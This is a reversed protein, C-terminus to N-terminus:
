AKDRLAEAPPPPDQPPAEPILCVHDGIVTDADPQYGEKADWFRVWNEWDVANEYFLLQKPQVQPFGLSRALSAPYPRLTGWSRLPYSVPATRHNGAWVKMESERLHYVLQPLSLTRRVQSDVLDAGSLRFLGALAVQMVTIQDPTLEELWAPQPITAVMWVSETHFRILLPSEAYADAELQLLISNPKLDIRALRLRIGRFAPSAHLLPLMEREIFHRMTTAHHHLREQHLALQQRRKLGATQREARRMKGYVKAVAGSHFGPKVLRAVTEGHNGVPVPKLSEDRNAQYLRWNSKLEWVLFGFIGPTVLVITGAITQALGVGLGLTNELAKALFPQTTLMIKHSVTVVPFHKIPNIQPEILLTVGFRIGYAVVSWISTLIGKIWMTFPHEGTKYLLWEDIAYLVREITEVFRRFTVMIADFLSRFVQVRLQYWARGIWAGVREEVQRGITSNLFFDLGAFIMVFLAISSTRNLNRLLLTALFYFIVTPILPAVLYRRLAKAIRSRLLFRAWELSMIWRPFDVFVAKLIQFFSQCGVWVFARFRPSYVLGLIFTGLLLIAPLMNPVSDIKWTAPLLGDPIETRRSLLSLAESAPETMETPAEADPAPVDKEAMRGSLWDWPHRIAELAVFAGGFPVAVYKVMFRSSPRGFGLSSIIQLGRLYFEGPRYVGDLLRKLRRNARLIADGFILEPGSLDSLKLQSRSIGDRVDGMTFYGRKVVCDLLEEVLKDRAVEEPLNAPRLENEHLTQRVKDGWTKNGDENVTQHRMGYDSLSRKIRTRLRNRLQTEASAAADRLLVSLEARQAASLRAKALRASAGRLHKAMLVERQNPLARKIPRRGFSRIFGWLDVTSSEREYDVCVKQLDYLLRKNTNWFGRFSYRFLALLAARWRLAEDENFALARRLRVLLTDIVEHAQKEAEQMMEPEPAVRSARRYLIASVVANGHERAADAWKLLSAHRKASPKLPPLPQDLAQDEETADDEGLIAREPYECGSPRTDELTKELDFDGYCLSRVLAHQGALSPFYTDLAQPAFSSLEAHLAVFEIYIRQLGDDDFLRLERRLIAEIEGFVDRGFEEIREHVRPASLFGEDARQQLRLVALAQFALRWSRLEASEGRLIAQRRQRPQAVLIVEDPLPTGETLGIEDWDVIQLLREGSIAHSRRRQTFFAPALSYDQQVVLDVIRPLVVLILPAGDKASADSTPSDPPTPTM